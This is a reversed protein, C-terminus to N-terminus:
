LRNKNILDIIEDKYNKGIPLEKVQGKEMLDVNNGDIAIVKDVNVIYSRHIRRFQPSPLKDELSKMTQLTIVRSGDMRIIVYDKLGEIYLIESYKIRMLKKDSKVFFHDIHEAGESRAHRHMELQETAKNVAKCFRDFSIPKLLYDIANLEFGEVAYESYATTFIVLPPNSLTKLFDVGTLQPMQIDLFMIDIKNNKLAENAEIANSCRAVLTLEPVRGVYNELIDQALPEDDVILVNIM